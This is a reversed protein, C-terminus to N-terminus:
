TAILPMEAEIRTLMRAYRERMEPRESNRALESLEKLSPRLELPLSRWYYKLDDTPWLSYTREWSRRGSGTFVLVGPNVPRLYSQFRCDLSVRLQSSRNPAAEHVTLSHFILLDGCHIAGGAWGSGRETGPTIYGTRGATPQLGYRHSGELIRLPGLDPPCDHLPLWATFTETDGAVATHDQHAHIIGPGFNPFILRAASKPHILLEEGVLQKMVRQMLPLHPLAHFSPLSFVQDYVDKYAPDDDACAANPNAIRDSPNSGPLLWGATHLISIIERSLVQLIEQPLLNRVLVYGYADIQERLSTSDLSTRDIEHFPKM